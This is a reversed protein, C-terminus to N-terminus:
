RAPRAAATSGILIDVDHHATKEILRSGPPLSRARESLGQQHLEVRRIQARLRIWRHGLRLIYVSAAVGAAATATLPDM